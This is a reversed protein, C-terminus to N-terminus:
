RLEGGIESPIGKRGNPGAVHYRRLTAEYERQAKRKRTRLSLEMVLNDGVRGLLDNERPNLNEGVNFKGAPWMRIYDWGGKETIALRMRGSGPWSRSTSFRRKLWPGEFTKHLYKGMYTGAGRGPEVEVAFVMFSDGTIAAWARSFEHALCECDVMRRIYRATEAGRKIRRGHCRVQTEQSVTGVVVHHHPTGAETLETVKLWSWKRGQRKLRLWLAAWDKRVCEADELRVSGKLYTLTIFACRGLRSCGVEVRAEFLAILKRRCVTCRWTKCTTPLIVSRGNKLFMEVFGARDCHGLLLSGVREPRGPDEIRTSSTRDEILLSGGGESENPRPCDAAGPSGGRRKGFLVPPLFRGTPEQSSLKRANM